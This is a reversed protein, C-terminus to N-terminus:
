TGHASRRRNGGKRLPSVIKPSICTAQFLSNSKTMSTAHWGMVLEEPGNADAIADNHIRGERIPDKKPKKVVKGGPNPSGLHSRDALPPRDRSQQRRCSAVEASPQHLTRRHHASGVEQREATCAGLRRASTGASNRKRVGGIASFQLVRIIRLARNHLALANLNRQLRRTPSIPSRMFVLPEAGPSEFPGVMTAPLKLRM